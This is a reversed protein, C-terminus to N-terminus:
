LGVEFYELTHEADFWAAYCKKTKPVYKGPVLPVLIWARCVYIPFDVEWEGQVSNSPIEGPKVDVWKM